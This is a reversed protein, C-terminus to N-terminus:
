VEDNSQKCASIAYSEWKDAYTYPIQIWQKMQKGKGSPDWLQVGKLSCLQDVTDQDTFKVVLCNKFFAAFAKGAQNKLCPKGFMKSVVSMKKQSFKQQM